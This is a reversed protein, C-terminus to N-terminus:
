EVTEVPLSVHFVPASEKCCAMWIKGRMARVILAAITLHLEDVRHKRLASTDTQALREFLEEQQPVGISPGPVSITFHLEIEKSSVLGRTTRLTIEGNAPALRIAQNVVATLIQHIRERDGLIQEPLLEGVQTTICGEKERFKEQNESAVNSLLTQLSFATRQMSFTGLEMNAFDRLFHTTTILGRSYQLVRDLQRYHAKTDEERLSRETSGILFRAGDSLDSCLKLLFESKMRDARLASEKLDRLERFTINREVAYHISRGILNEDISGKLLYDQAGAQVAKLAVYEDDLGSLILIPLDPTITRLCYFTDVGQADPLTLDLLIADFRLNSLLTVAQQFSEARSLEFNLTRNRRNWEDLLERTIGYDGDNDEVVLVRIMSLAPLRNPM